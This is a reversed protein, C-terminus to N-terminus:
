RLRKRAGNVAEESFLRKGCCGLPKMRTQPVRPAPQGTPWVACGHRPRQLIRQKRSGNRTSSAADLGNRATFRHGGMQTARSSGARGCPACCSRVIRRRSSVRFSARPAGGYAARGKKQPLRGSPNFSLRRPEPRTAARRDTASPQFGGTKVPHSGQKAVLRPDQGAAVLTRPGPPRHGAPPGRSAPGGSRFMSQWRKHILRSVRQDPRPQPEPGPSRVASPRSAVAGPSRRPESSGSGM